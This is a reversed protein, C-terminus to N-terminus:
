YMGGMDGGPAVPAPPTPIDTVISEEAYSYEIVLQGQIIVVAIFLIIAIISILKRNRYSFAGISGVIKDFM